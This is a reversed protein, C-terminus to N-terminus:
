GCTVCNSASKGYDEKALGFHSRDWLALLAERMRTSFANRVMSSVSQPMASSWVMVDWAVDSHQHLLYQELTPIYPRPRGGSRSSSRYVLAGNLDLILLKRPLPDSPQLHLSDTQDHSLSPSPRDSLHTALPSASRAPPAVVPPSLSFSPPASFRAQKKPRSVCIFLHLTTIM